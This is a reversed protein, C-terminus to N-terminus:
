GVRGDSKAHKMKEARGELWGIKGDLRNDVKPIFPKIDLLPTRDLMDVDEVYVLNGEVRDMKVISIGIPNPRAPFRTAFLGIKQTELYPQVHLTYKKAEHFHYLLIIYTFGKLDKLGAVYKEEIELTGKIGEAGVPQIPTGNPSTHPTRIVGIPTCQM